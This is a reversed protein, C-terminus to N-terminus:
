SVWILSPQSSSAHFVTERVNKREIPLQPLADGIEQTRINNIFHNALMAPKSFRHQFKLPAIGSECIIQVSGCQMTSGRILSNQAIHADNHISEGPMVSDQLAHSRLGSFLLRNVARQEMINETLDMWLVLCSRYDNLPHEAAVGAIPM